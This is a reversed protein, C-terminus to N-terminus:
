TNTTTLILECHLQLPPDQHRFFIDTIDPPLKSLKAGGAGGAVLVIGSIAPLSFNVSSLQALREVSNNHCINQGRIQVLCEIGLHNTGFEEETQLVPVRLLSQSHGHM